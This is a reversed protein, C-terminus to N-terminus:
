CGGSRVGNRLRAVASRGTSPQAGFLGWAAEVTTCLAEVAFPIILSASETSPADFLDAPAADPSRGLISRAHWGSHAVASAIRYYAQGVGPIHLEDEAGMVGDVLSMISPDRGGDAALITPTQRKPRQVELGVAPGWALMEEAKKLFEPDMAPQALPPLSASRRVSAQLEGMFRSMETFGSVAENMGRRLRELPDVNPELLHYAAGCTELLARGIAFSPVAPSPTRLLAPLVAANDFGASLLSASFRLLNDAAYDDGLELARRMVTRIPAEAPPPLDAYCRRVARKIAPLCDELLHAVRESPIEGPDEPTLPEGNVMAGKAGERHNTRGALM